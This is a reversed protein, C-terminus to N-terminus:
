TNGERGLSKAVHLEDIVHEIEDDAVVHKLVYGL